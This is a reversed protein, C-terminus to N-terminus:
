NFWKGAMIGAEGSFNIIRESTPLKQKPLQFVGLLREVPNGCLNNKVRM